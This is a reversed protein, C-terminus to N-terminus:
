CFLIFSFFFTPLDFKFTDLFEKPVVKPIDKGALSVVSKSEVIQEMGIRRTFRPPPSCSNGKEEREERERTKSEEGKEEGGGEGEEGRETEVGKGEEEEKEEREEEGEEIEKKKEKRFVSTRDGCSRSLAVVGRKRKTQLYYEEEEEKKEEEDEENKEGEEEENKVEIEEIKKEQTKENM